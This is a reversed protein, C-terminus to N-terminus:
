IKIHKIMPKEKVTISHFIKANKIANQSKSLKYELQTTGTIAKFARHFSRECTFGCDWSVQDITYNKTLLINKAYDIRLANILTRFNMSLVKSLTHSIESKSYGIAASVKELTIEERFHSSLYKLTDVLANQRIGTEKGVTPVTQVYENIIPYILSKVGLLDKKEIDVILEGTDILRNHVFNKLEESPTFAIDYYRNFATDNGLADSVLSYSFLLLWIKVTQGDESYYGHPQYPPVFVMDGAKAPTTKELTKVNLTGDIVYAIEALQHIHFPCRYRPGHVSAMVADNFSFARRQIIM